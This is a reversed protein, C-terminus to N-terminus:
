LPSIGEFISREIKSVAVDTDISIQTSNQFMANPMAVKVELKADKELAKLSDVSQLAVSIKGQAANVVTVSGYGEATKDVFSWKGFLRKGDGYLGVLIGTVGTLNIPTGLEEDKITIEIEYTGGRIM